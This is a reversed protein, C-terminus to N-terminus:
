QVGPSSRSRANAPSDARLRAVEEGIRRVASAIAADDTDRGLGIRIAGRIREPLFGCAALVPSPEGTGSACASGTSLAVDSLAAVLAAADVAEFSVHLNAPLRGSGAPPGNWTVGAVQDTLDAYFRDRLAGLRLAETERETVALAVARGMGVVQPVPLTGARLGGEHGGGYLLPTLRIRQRSARRRRRVYLAGIGKPGYLKHASISVLDVGNADVDFPIKGVAQAADTHLLVDRAATIEGIAGLDPVTGLESNAAMVSVMVTDDTIARAVAKASVFGDADVPLRTVRAGRRELAACTELVAPHETAVTVIHGRGGAAEFAGQLALNDSETAGSTFVIERPDQAGIAAAVQERAIEVAAAARWGFRHTASSANGFDERFYPRMAEVVRADVPTTAHHDLYIMAPLVRM